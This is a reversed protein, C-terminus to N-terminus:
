MGLIKIVIRFFLYLFLSILLVIPFHLIRVLSIYEQGKTMLIEKTGLMIISMLVIIGLTWPNDAIERITEM